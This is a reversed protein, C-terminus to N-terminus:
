IDLSFFRIRAIRCCLRRWNKKLAPIWYFLLSRTSPHLNRGFVQLFALGEIERLDDSDCFRNETIFTDTPRIKRDDEHGSRLDAREVFLKESATIGRIDQGKVQSVPDAPSPGPVGGSFSLDRRLDDDRNVRGGSIGPDIPHRKGFFEDKIHDM